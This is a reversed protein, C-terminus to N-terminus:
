GKLLFYIFSSTDTNQAAFVTIDFECPVFFAVFHFDGTYGIFCSPYVSTTFSQTNPQLKRPILNLNGPCIKTAIKPGGLQIIPDAFSSTIHAHMNFYTFFPVMGEGVKSSFCDVRNWMRRQNEVKSFDNRSSDRSM